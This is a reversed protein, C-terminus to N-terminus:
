HTLDVVRGIGAARARDIILRAAALDQLALGVSDFLTIQSDKERGPLRGSVVDGLEVAVHAQDIAHEALPILIDGSDHLAVTLSDVVVRARVIGETDIERYDHRPPAGVANVHLGETFWAGRVLPERAPTLTCLVDCGRVAEEATQAVTVPLERNRAVFAEITAASRSWVLVRELPLVARLAAVHADALAGAGVLGLVRSDPRALHRSAVASAAATRCQTLAWGDIVAECAGTEPDGVLLTSRQAPRGLARNDPMDALLKVGVARLERSAAAMPLYAHTAPPLRLPVPAPQDATGVTLEAHARAVADIVDRHDLLALVDSRTLILTM